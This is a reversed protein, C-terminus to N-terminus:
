QRGAHGRRALGVCEQLRAPAANEDHERAPGPATADQGPGDQALLAEDDGVVERGLLRAHEGHQGESARVVHGLHLAHEVLVSGPACAMFLASSMTSVSRAAPTLWPKPMGLPFTSGRSSAMRTPRSGYTSVAWSPEAANAASTMPRRVPAGPSQMAVSPGPAVLRVVPTPWAQSSREGSSGSVQLRGVACSPRRTLIAM